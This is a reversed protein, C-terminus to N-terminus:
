SLHIKTAGYRFGAKKLILPPMWGGQIQDTFHKMTKTYGHYLGKYKLVTRFLILTCYYTIYTRRSNTQTLFSGFYHTPSKVLEQWMAPIMTNQIDYHWRAVQNQWKQLTTYICMLMKLVIKRWNLGLLCYLQPKSRDWTENRPLYYKWFKTETM